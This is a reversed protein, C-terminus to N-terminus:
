ADPVNVLLTQVTMYIALFLMQCYRPTTNLPRHSSGLLGAKTLVFHLCDQFCGSVQDTSRIGTM